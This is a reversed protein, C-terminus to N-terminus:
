RRLLNLDFKEIFFMKLRVNKIQDFKGFFFFLAFRVFRAKLFIRGFHPARRM